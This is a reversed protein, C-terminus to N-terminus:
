KHLKFIRELYKYNWNKFHSKRYYLFHSKPSSWVEEYSDKNSLLLSRSERFVVHNMFFKTIEPPGTSVVYSDKNNKHFVVHNM